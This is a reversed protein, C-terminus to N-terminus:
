EVARLQSWGARQLLDLRNLWKEFQPAVAELSYRSQAQCRIDSPALGGVLDVADVGEQLSRFRYGMGPGVTETFAGWDTAITPTGCMQGEVAVGGFPEIYTTPVILARAKSMAEAREGPNLVGLYEVGKGEIVVEGCEIRGPKWNLAGPGAVLLKMGAAEAIQAAIHPGKRWVLRGVFLLYEGDGQNLFPFDESDFYNPIVADFWRGDQFVADGQAEKRAYVHHMWAYSEFACFDFCIGPYGVFPECCIVTDPLAGKFLRQSYGGSLLVKDQPRLREKIAKLARVNHLLWGRDDPWFPLTAPDDAAGGFLTAREENSLTQVLNPVESGEPAYVITDPFM